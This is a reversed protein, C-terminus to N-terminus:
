IYGKQLKLGCEALSYGHIFRNHIVEFLDSYVLMAM